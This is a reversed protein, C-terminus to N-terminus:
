IGPQQNDGRYPGDEKGQEVRQALFEKWGEFSSLVTGM